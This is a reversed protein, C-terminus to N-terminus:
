RGDIDLGYESADRRSQFDAQERGNEGRAASLRWRELKTFLRGRPHTQMWDLHGDLRPYGAKRNMGYLDDTFESTPPAEELQKASVALRFREFDVPQQFEDQDVALRWLHGQRAYVTKGHRGFDLEELRHSSSQEGDVFFTLNGDAVRLSREGKRSGWRSLRGLIAAAVLLVLGVGGMEWIPAPDGNLHIGSPDYFYLLAPLVLVSGFLIMFFAFPALLLQLFCGVGADFPGRIRKLRFDM